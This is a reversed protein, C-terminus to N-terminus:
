ARRLIQWVNVAIIAIFLLMTWGAISLGLLTWVVEACNGDGRFMVSLADWLPFNEFLYAIDPGCAPVQDEPLSQLWLQRGAVIAGLLAFLVGFGGAVKRGWGRPNLVFAVLAALGGLIVFVRQTICLGCPYLDMGYQMYMAVLIATLAIAALLGFTQRPNPTYRNLSSEEFTRAAPRM